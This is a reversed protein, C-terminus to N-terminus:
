WRHWRTGRALPSLNENGFFYKGVMRCYIAKQVSSDAHISLEGTAGNFMLVDYKLPRYFVSGIDNEELSEERRM